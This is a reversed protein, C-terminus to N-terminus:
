FWSGICMRAHSVTLQNLVASFVCNWEAGKYPEIM